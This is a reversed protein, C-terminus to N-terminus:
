KLKVLEKVQPFDIVTGAVQNFYNTFINHTVNAVIEAIEGDNYGVDRLKSIEGDDVVGRNDVLKQAFQLAVNDKKNTSSSRRSDLIAEESLGVAQGIASHAALCYTCGNAESVALAIQERLKSSLSGKALAEGFGLYAELVAPSNAMTRMINPTMGLKAQVQNLLEKAKEDATDTSIPQLRPM